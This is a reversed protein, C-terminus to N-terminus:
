ATLITGPSVIRGEGAGLVRAEILGSEWGYLLRGILHEDLWTEPPRLVLLDASAGVEILGADPWGVAEANDRTILRWAEEPTPVVGVKGTLMQRLKATEIMARAVRPMAVDAGAAVDSGLALRVGHDRAATLDFVGSRLFVNATPCHVVVSRSSAIRAWEDAVLHCCHALLTREGLLGAREYVGLYHPSDPFLRSVAEVEARDEALHTQVVLGPREGRLWGVEALLEESCAPAFRPNASAEVRAGRLAAVDMVACPIPRQERRWRDEATLDDPAGRDMQVRGAVGRLGTRALVDLAGRSAEAHSTLYAAFGLTGERVLGHLAAGLVNRWGGAGWWREAPYVVRDLWALLEMGDCGVAPFQPLHTHADIFAPCIIRGPGGADPRRSRSPDGEGLEAIRGREVRLWGPTPPQSPDRLLLGQILMTRAWRLVAAGRQGM